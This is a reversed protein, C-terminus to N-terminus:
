RAPEQRTVVPLPLKQVTGNVDNDVWGSIIVHEGSQAQAAPLLSPGGLSIWVLCIAIITPMVKTYLDTKM